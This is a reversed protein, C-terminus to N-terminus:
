FEFDLDLWCCCWAGTSGGTTWGCGTTAGNGGTTVTAEVVSFLFFFSFFCGAAVDAGTTWCGDCGAAGTTWIGAVKDVLSDIWRMISCDRFPEAGAWVAAAGFAADLGALFSVLLVVAGASM